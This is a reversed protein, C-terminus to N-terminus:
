RLHCCLTSDNTFLDSYLNGSKKDHVFIVLLNLREDAQKKIVKYPTAWFLLGSDSTMMLDYQFRGNHSCKEDIQVLFHACSFLLDTNFIRHPVHNTVDDSATNSAATGTFDVCRIFDHKFILFLSFIHFYFFYGNLPNNQFPTQLKSLRSSLLPLASMM